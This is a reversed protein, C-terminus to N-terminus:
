STTIYHICCTKLTGIGSLVIGNEINNDSIAKNISELLLEGPGIGLTILEVEGKAKIYEM